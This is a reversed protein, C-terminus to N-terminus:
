RITELSIVLAATEDTGINTLRLRTLSLPRVASPKDGLFVHYEDTPQKPLNAEPAKALFVTRYGPVAFEIQNVLPGLWAVDRKSTATILFTKALQRAFVTHTRDAIFTRRLRLDAELLRGAPDITLDLSALPRFRPSAPRFTLVQHGAADKWPAMRELHFRRFLDTRKADEPREGLAGFADLPMTAALKLADDFELEVSYIVRELQEGKVIWLPKGTPDPVATVGALNSAAALFSGVGWPDWYTFTDTEPDCSIVVIAHASRGDFVIADPIGLRLWCIQRLGQLLVAPKVPVAEALSNDAETMLQENLLARLERGTLARYEELGQQLDAGEDLRRAAADPSSQTPKEARLSSLVARLFDNTAGETDPGKVSGVLAVINHQNITALVIRRDTSAQGSIQRQMRWSFSRKGDALPSSESEVSHWGEKEFRSRAWMHYFVLIASAPMSWLGPPPSATVIEVERGDIRLKLRDSSIPVIESGKMLLSFENGRAKSILLVGDKTRTASVDTPVGGAEQAAAVASAVTLGAIALILSKALKRGSM